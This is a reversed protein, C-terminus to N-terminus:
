VHGNKGKTIKFYKASIDDIKLSEAEQYLALDKKTSETKSSDQNSLFKQLNDIQQDKFSIIWFKTPLNKTNISRDLADQWSLTIPTQNLEKAVLLNEVYISMSPTQTVYVEPTSKESQNVQNSQSSEVQESRDSQYIATFIKRISVDQKLGILLTGIIIIIAFISSILTFFTKARSPPAGELIFARWNILHRRHRFSILEKLKLRYLLLIASYIISMGLLLAMVSDFETAFYIFVPNLTSISIISFTNKADLKNRLIFFLVLIIGAGCFVSFSRVSTLTAGFIQTWFGLSSFYINQPFFNHHPRVSAQGSTPVQFFGLYNAAETNSVQKLIFQSCLLFYILLLGALSLFHSIKLHPKQKM